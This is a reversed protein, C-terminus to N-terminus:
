FNRFCKGSARSGRLTPEISLKQHNQVFKVFISKKKFEFFKQFFIKKMLFYNKRKYKLFSRLINQPYKSHIQESKLGWFLSKQWLSAYKQLFRWPSSFKAWFHCKWFSFIYNKVKLAFIHGLTSSFVNKLGPISLVCGFQDLVLLTQWFVM